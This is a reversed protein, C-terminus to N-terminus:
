IHFRFYCVGHVFYLLFLGMLLPFLSITKLPSPTHSLHFPFFINLFFFIFSPWLFTSLFPSLQPRFTTLMCIYFISDFEGKFFSINKKFFFVTKNPALFMLFSICILSAKLSSNETETILGLLFKSRCHDGEWSGSDKLIM